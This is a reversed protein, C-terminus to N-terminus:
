PFMGSSRRLRFADSTREIEHPSLLGRAFEPFDDSVQWRGLVEFMIECDEESLGFKRKLIRADDPPIDQFQSILLFDGENALDLHLAQVQQALGINVLSRNPRPGEVLFRRATGPDTIILRAATECAAYVVSEDVLTSEQVRGADHKHWTEALLDVQVHPPVQKLFPVETLFGFPREGSAGIQEALVMRELTDCIALRFAAYTVDTAPLLDNCIKLMNPMTALSIGLSLDFRARM